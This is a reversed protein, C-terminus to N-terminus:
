PSKILTNHAVISQCFYSYDIRGGRRGGLFFIQGIQGFTICPQIKYGVKIVKEIMLINHHPIHLLCFSFVKLIEVDKIDHDALLTWCSIDRLRGANKQSM